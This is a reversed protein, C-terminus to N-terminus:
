KGTWGAADMCSKIRGEQCSRYADGASTCAAQSSKECEDLASKMLRSCSAEVGSICALQTDKLERCEATTSYGYGASFALPIATAALVVGSVMGATNLGSLDICGFGGTCSGSSKSSTAIAAIGTGLAAAALVTDVVPSAVSTTCVVPPAVPVPDTPPKNVFIWSCGTGPVLALGLAVLVVPRSATM